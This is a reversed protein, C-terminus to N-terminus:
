NKLRPGVFWLFTFAAFVGLGLAIGVWGDHLVIKAILFFDLCIALELTALGATVLAASVKLFRETVEDRHHLHFAAPAILLAASLASLVTAILHVAQGTPTLKSFGPEAFVVVLQFGFLAQVGPLIMRCEERLASAQDTLSLHAKAGDHLPSM